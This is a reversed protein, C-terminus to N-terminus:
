IKAGPSAGKVIHNPTRIAVDKYCYKLLLLELTKQNNRLHRDPNCYIENLPIIKGNKGEVGFNFELYPTIQGELSRFRIEPLQNRDRIILLRWEADETRVEPLFVPLYRALHQYVFNRCEKGALVKEYKNPQSNKLFDDLLRFAEKIIQDLIEQQLRSNYIVKDLFVQNRRLIQESFIQKHLTFCFSDSASTYNQWQNPAGAEEHFSIAFIEQQRSYFPNFEKENHESFSDPDKDPNTFSFFLNKTETAYLKSHFLELLLQQVMRWCYEIKQSSNVLNLHSARFVGQTVIGLLGDSDTYHYLNHHPKQLSRNTENHHHEMDQQLRSLHTKYIELNGREINMMMRDGTEKL